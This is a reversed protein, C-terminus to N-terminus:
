APVISAGLVSCVMPVTGAQPDSPHLHARDAALKVSNRGKSSEGLRSDQINKRFSCTAEVKDCM